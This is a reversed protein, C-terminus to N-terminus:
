EQRSREVAGDCIAAAEEYSRGVRRGFLRRARNRPLQELAARLEEFEVRGLATRTNIEAPRMARRQGEVERAAQSRMLPVSQASDSVVSMNTGARCISTRSRAAVFLTEKVLDDARDGNGCLSMAFAALEFLASEGRPLSPALTMARDKQVRRMSIATSAIKVNRCRRGRNRRLLGRDVKRAHALVTRNLRGRQKGKQANPLMMEEIRSEPPM